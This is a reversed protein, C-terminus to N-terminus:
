LARGSLLVALNSRHEIPPATFASCPCYCWGTLGNHHDHPHGCSCVAEPLPTAAILERMYSREALFQYLAQEPTM